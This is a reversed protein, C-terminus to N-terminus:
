ESRRRDIALRAGSTQVASAESDASQLVTNDPLREGVRVPKIVTGQQILALGDAPIEIVKFGLAKHHGKDKYETPGPQAAEYVGAGRPAAQQEKLAQQVKPAPPHVQATPARQSAATAQEAQGAPMAPTTPIGPAQQAILSQPTEVSAPASPAAAQVPALPATMLAQQQSIGSMGGAPAPAPALNDAPKGIVKETVQLPAEAFRLTAIHGAALGFLLALLMRVRWARRSAAIRAQRNKYIALLERRHRELMARAHEGCGEERARGLPDIRVVNSM